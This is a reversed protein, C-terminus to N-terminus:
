EADYHKDESLDETTILDVLFSIFITKAQLLVQTCQQKFSDGVAQMKNAQM